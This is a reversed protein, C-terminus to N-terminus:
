PCARSASTTRSASGSVRWNGAPAGKVSCRRIIANFPDEAATPRAGLQRETYKQPERPEIMQELDEYRPFVEPILGMFAAEEEDNLEFHNAQALRKLDDLTPPRLVM